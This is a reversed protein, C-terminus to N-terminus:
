ERGTKKDHQRADVRSELSAHLTVRDAYGISGGLPLGFALRTVKVDCDDLADLVTFFTLDGEVRPNTAIIVETFAGSVVYEKLADIRKPDLDEGDLPSVRGGLIFYLGSYAGSQEFSLMDEVSELVCLTSRDRLPDSCIPCPDEEETTINGCVSCPITQERLELLASALERTFTRPQQLIYLAFRRATKEGVGPLKGLLRVTQELPGRTV